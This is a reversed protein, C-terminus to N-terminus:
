WTRPGFSGVFPGTSSTWPTPTRVSIQRGGVGRVSSRPARRRPSRRRSPSRAPSCPRASCCTSARGPRRARGGRRRGALDHLQGACLRDLRDGVALARRAEHHGGARAEHGLHARDDRARDRQVRHHRLHRLELEVVDDRRNRPQEAVQVRLPAVPAGHSSGLASVAYQLSERRSQSLPTQLTDLKMNPAPLGVSQVCSCSLASVCSHVLPSNPGAGSVNKLCIALHM